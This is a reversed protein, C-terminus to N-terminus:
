RVRGVRGRGHGCGGLPLSCQPDGASDVVWRTTTVRDHAVVRLPRYRHAVLRMVAGDCAHLAAAVIVVGRRSRSRPRRRLSRPHGDVSLGRRPRRPQAIGAVRPRPDRPPAGAAAEGVSGGVARRDALRGDEGPDARQGDRRGPGIHPDARIRRAMELGRPTIRASPLLVAVVGPPPAPRSSALNSRSSSNARTRGFIRRCHSRSRARRPRARSFTRAATMRSRSSVRMRTPLSSYARRLRDNPRVVIFSRWARTSPVATTKRNLPLDPWRWSTPSRSRRSDLTM